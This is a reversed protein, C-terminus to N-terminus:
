LCTSQKRIYCFNFIFLNNGIAGFNFYIKYKSCQYALHILVIQLIKAICLPQETLKPKLFLIYELHVLTIQPGWAIYFHHKMLNWNRFIFMRSIKFDDLIMRCFDGSVQSLRPNPICFSASVRFKQVSVYSPTWFTRPCETEWSRTENM